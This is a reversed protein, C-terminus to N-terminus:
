GGGAIRLDNELSEGEFVVDMGRESRKWESRERDRM